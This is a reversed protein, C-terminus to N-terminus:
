TLPIQWGLKKRWGLIDALMSLTWCSLFTGHVDAELESGTTMQVGYYSRRPKTLSFAFGQNEFKFKKVISIRDLAFQKIEDERYSTFQMAQHLAFIIDANDCGQDENSAKLCYDIISKPNPLPINCFKYAAAIKMTGNVIQRPPPNSKHWLGITTNRIKDLEETIVNILNSQNNYGLIHQNIYHFVLLHGAHSGAGYPTEWPLNLIFEQVSKATNPINTIPKDPQSGLLMLSVIAQRTEAKRTQIDKELLPFVKDTFQVASDAFRFLPKNRIYKDIRISALYRSKRRDLIKLLETDEFFGSQRGWDTQFSKIRNIWLNKTKEDFNRTLGLIYLTKLVLCTIGLGKTKNANFVSSNNSFRYCGPGYDTELTKLWLDIEKSLSNIWAPPYDTATSKNHINKM